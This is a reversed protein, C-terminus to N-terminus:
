ASLEKQVEQELQNVADEVSGVIPLFGILKTLEVVRKISGHINAIRICIQKILSPSCM